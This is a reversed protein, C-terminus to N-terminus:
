SESGYVRTTLVVAQYISTKTGGKKLHKSKWVRKYLKGFASNAEAQRNDVEKDIKTDSTITCGM